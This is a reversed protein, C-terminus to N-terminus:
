DPPLRLVESRACARARVAYDKCRNPCLELARVLIQGLSPCRITEGPTSPLSACSASHARSALVSWELVIVSRLRLASMRSKCFNERANGTPRQPPQSGGAKAVRAPQTGNGKTAARNQPARLDGYRSAAIRRLGARRWALWAPRKFEGREKARAFAQEVDPLTIYGRGFRLADRHIEHWEMVATRESLRQKAFQVADEAVETRYKPSYTVCERGRAAAVVWQPQKGFQEAHNLHMARVQDSTLDLKAARSSLTINQDAQPGYHGLEDKRAQIEARRPSEAKRYEETYGKIEIALNKGYELEYGLAKLGVALRNQYVAEAAGQLYFLEKPSLARYQGERDQSM